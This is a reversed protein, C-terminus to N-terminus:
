KPKEGQIAKYIKRPDSIIIPIILILLIPTVVYTMNYISTSPVIYSWLNAFGVDTTVYWADVNTNIAGAASVLFPGNLINVGLLILFAVASIGIKIKGSDLTSSIIAIGLLLGLNYLLMALIPPMQSLTPTILNRIFLTWVLIIAIGVFAFKLEKGEIKIKMKITRKREHM